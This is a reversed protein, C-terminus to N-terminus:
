PKIYAAAYGSPALYCYRSAVGGHPIELTVIAGYIIPVVFDKFLSKYIAM